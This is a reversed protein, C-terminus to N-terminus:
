GQLEQTTQVVFNEEGEEVDRTKRLAKEIREAVTDISKHDTVKLFIGDYDDPIEFIERATEEPIYINSDDQPNGITEVTGIVEFERGAIVLKDNVRVERDFFDGIAHRYGVLVNTKDSDKIFRGDRIRLNFSNAYIEAANGKPYSLMYTYDVERGFKVKLIKFIYGAVTEVGTIKEVARFDQPSLKTVSSGIAGFLSSGPLVFIKDVGLVEFQQTIASQLGQGLSVLSVVAAIGIFVGLM